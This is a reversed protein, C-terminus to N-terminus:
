TQRRRCWAALRRTDIGVFSDIVDVAASFDQSRTLPTPAALCRMGAAAAAAVGIANDEIVLCCAPSLPVPLGACAAVFIDPAPKGRAVDDGSLVTGFRNTLGLCALTLDIDDRPSSSALALPVRCRCLDALLEAIGARAVAQERLLRRYHAAKRQNLTQPDCPLQHRAVIQRFNDIARIGIFQRFSEQDYCLGYSQLAANFAAMQLPESDLLVGDMDFIVAWGAGAM